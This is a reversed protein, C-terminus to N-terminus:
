EGFKGNLEVEGAWDPPYIGQEVCRSFTSFPWEIVQKVYGHKLPNVHVYDIHRQYDNEDRIRHEWFRRQWIGREGKSSHSSSLREMRPVGHSFRSKILRWRTSFNRDGDPLTWVAHIHDPLVVWADIHFPWDHRVIRVAERLGEIEKILLDSKRNALTVTFFWTGGPTRDRRYNAM